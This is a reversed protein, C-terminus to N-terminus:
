IAKEKQNSAKSAGCNRCNMDVGSILSGCYSCLVSQVASEGVIDAVMACMSQVTIPCCSYKQIMKEILDNNMEM